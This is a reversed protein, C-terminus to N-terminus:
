EEIEGHGVVREAARTGPPAAQALAPRHFVWWAAIVGAGLVPGIGMACLARGAGSWGLVGLAAFVIVTAAFLVVVWQMGLLAGRRWVHWGLPNSPDNM